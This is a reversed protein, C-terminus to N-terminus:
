EDCEGAIEFERKQILAKVALAVTKNPDTKFKGLWILIKDTALRIKLKRGEIRKRM